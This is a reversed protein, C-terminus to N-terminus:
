EASSDVSNTKDKSCTREDDPGVEGPGDQKWSVGQAHWGEGGGTSVSQVLASSKSQIGELRELLFVAEM